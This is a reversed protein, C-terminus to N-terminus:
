CVAGSGDDATVGGEGPWCVVGDCRRGSGQLGAGRLGYRQQSDGVSQSFEQALSVSITSIKRKLIGNIEQV